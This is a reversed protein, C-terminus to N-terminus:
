SEPRLTWLGTEADFSLLFYQTKNGKIARLLYEGPGDVTWLRGELRGGSVALDTEEDATLEVTIGAEASLPMVDRSFAAANHLTVTQIVQQGDVSVLSQGLGLVNVAVMLCAAVAAATKVLNSPFSVVKKPQQALVKEKLAPDPAVSQWAAKTKEDFM